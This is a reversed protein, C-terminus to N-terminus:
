STPPDSLVGRLVIDLMSELQETLSFSPDAEIWRLVTSLYGIWLLQGTQAPQADTRIEGRRMGSELIRSLPSDPAPDRLLGGFRWAADMLVATQARSALNLAALEQLYSRLQSAVPEDGLQSAAMRRAVHARRRVGWEELFAVKQGYYNFVTARAVDAREAIADMSTTEFGNETFLSIAAAYLRDRVEQRKRERRPLSGDPDSAPPLATADASSTSVAIHISM